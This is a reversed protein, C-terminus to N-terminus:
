GRRLRERSWMPGRRDTRSARRTARPARRPRASPPSRRATGPGARPRGPRAARTGRHARRAARRARAPRPRRRGARPRLRCCRRSALGVARGRGREARAHSRGHGEDVGLDQGQGFAREGGPQAVLRRQGDIPRGEVLQRGQLRVHEGGLRLAHQRAEAFHEVRRVRDVAPRLHAVHRERREGVGGAGRVRVREVEVLRGVLGGVVRAHAAGGPRREAGPQRGVLVRHAAREGALDGLVDHEGLRAAVLARLVVQQVPVLHGELEVGVHEVDDLGLERRVHLAVRAQAPAHEPEVLQQVAVDLRREVRAVHRRHGEVVGGRQELLRERREAGLVDRQHSAGELLAPDVAGVVGALRRSREAGRGVAHM